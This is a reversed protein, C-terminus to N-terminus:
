VVVGDSVSYKLVMFVVYLKAENSFKLTATVIMGTTVFLM